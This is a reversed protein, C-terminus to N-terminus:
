EACHNCQLYRSEAHPERRTAHQWQHRLYRYKDTTVVQLLNWECKDPNVTRWDKLDTKFSAEVEWNKVLNEVLQPLSGAEHNSRKGEEFVKRTKTYDPAKGYRWSEIKDGLVANPSLLYDPWKTELSEGTAKATTASM